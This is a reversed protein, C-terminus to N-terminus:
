CGNRIIEEPTCIVPFHIGMKSFHATMKRQIFPNAIHKCNWTLLYDVRHIGAAAIHLADLHAITPLIGTSILQTALLQVEEDVDLRSIGAMLELRAKAMAPEGCGIEDLVAQTTFLEFSHRSIDWWERTLEQRTLLLLDRSPRAVYYSPISSEIFISPQMFM